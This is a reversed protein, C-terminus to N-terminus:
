AARLETQAARRISASSVQAEEKAIEADEIRQAEARAALESATWVRKAAKEDTDDDAPAAASASAATAPAPAAASSSASTAGDHAPAVAASSSSSSSPAPAPASMAVIAYPSGLLSQPDFGRTVLVACHSLSLSVACRPSCHDGLVVSRQAVGRSEAERWQSSAAAAASAHSQLVRIM